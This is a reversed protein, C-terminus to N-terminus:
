VSLSFGVTTERNGHDMSLTATWMGGNSTESHQDNHYLTSELYMDMDFQRCCESFRM